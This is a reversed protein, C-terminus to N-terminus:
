SVAARLLEEAAALAEEAKSPDKGGASAYEAKGGGGGGAIAAVGKILNGAHASKTIAEAGVRCVFMVKEPTSIAALTVQNPKGAAENDVLTNAMKPDIDGLNKRWLVIGGIEVLSATDEGGQLQALEAQERRKREQKLQDLAREIGPLLEKAQVKLMAAAEKLKQADERARELASEGTIAEIRRIGSAASAESVIRFQGIEGTTRVHIGGCLERSFDGIEVMRVKDGYKEGFLAMAGKAKAEAIPLDAYTVVDANRLL